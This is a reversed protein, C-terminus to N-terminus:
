WLTLLTPDPQPYVDWVLQECDWVFCPIRASKALKLCGATGGSTSKPHPFGLVLSPKLDVMVKNRMHGAPSGHTDWDPVFPSGSHVPLRHKRWFRLAILDAGVADGVILTPTAPDAAQALFTSLGQEVPGALIHKRSGTVLVTSIAIDDFM